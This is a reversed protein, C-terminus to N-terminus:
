MKNAAQGRSSIYWYFNLNNFKNYLYMKLTFTNQPKQDRPSKGLKLPYNTESTEPHYVPEMKLALIDTALTRYRRHYICSRKHLMLTTIGVPFFRLVAFNWKAWRLNRM